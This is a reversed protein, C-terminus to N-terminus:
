ADRRGPTFELPLHRIERLAPSYMLVHDARLRYEPIRRHWERLVVRLEMRALHSGLCRHVGAGFSVHRNVERRFDVTLPDPFTTPDLNLNAILVGVKEDKRIPCGGIETDVMAVRAITPVPTEYRLLEEVAHPILAPDEVLQRQHEPHRALFALSCELTDTVTDLGAIFLLHCINLSEERTLEGADELTVFHSMLDDGPEPERRRADLAEGYMAFVWGSAEGRKADQAAASGEPRILDDKVRLFEPLRSLPLGMLQLFVGSPVPVALDESFDCSGGEIFADICRNVLAAVGDELLAMKRPTFLPDLMRRYRVHDPPDVQLPILGTDSGLYVADPNSSFRQPDHLVEEVAGATTVLTQFGGGALPGRAALDRWCDHADEGWIQLEPVSRNSETITTADM